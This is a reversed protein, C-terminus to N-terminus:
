LKTETKLRNIIMGSTKVAMYNNAVQIAASLKSESNSYITFLPDGEKVFAGIRTHLVLGSEKSSPTGAASCILKVGRNSISRVYGDQTACITHTYEGVPVSDSTVKPDGGQAEIIEKFKQLAKGSNILERAMLAGKNPAVVGGMELLTGALEISKAFATNKVSGELIQLAEKAELAPGVNNGIPIDGFTMAAEVNIGVNHCLGVLRHGFNVADEPTQMKTYKGTPIDIVLNKIGMAIKTSIIASLMQDRPDIDLFKKVKAVIGDMPSLKLPENHVIMGRVQPAIESVEEPSFDINALVEMSDATGSPSTIARSSTKPILLGASAVIPVIILSVKNGPVGGISHKDFTKEQFDFQTGQEAMSKAFATMEEESFGQFASTMVFSSIELSIYTRKSIDNVISHVEAKTWPRGTMKQKILELSSPTRRNAILVIDGEKVNLWKADEVSIGVVNDEIIGETVIPTASFSKESVESKVTVIATHRFRLKSATQHSIMVIPDVARTDLIKVPLNIM